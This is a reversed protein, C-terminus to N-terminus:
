EVLIANKILSVGPPMGAQGLLNVTPNGSLSIADAVVVGTSYTVNNGFFTLQAKPFYLAGSFTSNNDGGLQPGASDSPDQYFLIGAYQGSTPPSLQFDLNNGGGAANITAGDTFYFTVGSGSITANGKLTFGASTDVIYTGPNFTVSPTNSGGTGTISISTYTGPNVTYNGAGSINIATGGTCPSCPPTLYALPDGSAPM